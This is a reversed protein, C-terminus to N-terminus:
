PENVNRELWILTAALHLFAMFRRALKEYRTFIRQFWKIRNIFREVMDAWVGNEEWGAYRKFVTNWKGLDAPLERWQAGTRVIWYVAEVFRRCKEEQGAYARPHGQLFADLKQWQHDAVKNTSM